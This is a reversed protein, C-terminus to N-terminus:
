MCFYSSHCISFFLLFFFFSSFLFFFSIFLVDTIKREASGFWQAVEKQGGLNRVVFVCGNSSSNGYIHLAYNKQFQKWSKKKWNSYSMDTCPYRSQELISNTRSRSHAPKHVPSEGFKPTKLWKKNLYKEARCNKEKGEPIGLICINSEWTRLARNVKKKKM